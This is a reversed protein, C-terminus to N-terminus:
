EDSYSNLYLAVATLVGFIWPYEGIWFPAYEDLKLVTAVEDLFAKM